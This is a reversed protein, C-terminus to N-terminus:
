VQLVFHRANYGLQLSLYGGQAALRLSTSHYGELYTLLALVAYLKYQLEPEFTEAV